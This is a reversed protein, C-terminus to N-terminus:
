SSPLMGSCAVQRYAACACAAACLQVVHWKVAAEYLRCIGQNWWCWAARGPGWGACAGAYKKDKDAKRQRAM